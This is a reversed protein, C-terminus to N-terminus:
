PKSQALSTLKRWDVDTPRRVEWFTLGNVNNKTIARAAASASQFAQGAEGILQGGQIEAQHLDGKYRARFRTGNPLYRGGISRGGVDSRVNSPENSKEPLGLIDRLVENYTHAEGARRLTLAKWVEFDVEIQQM